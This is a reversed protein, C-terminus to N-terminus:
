NAFVIDIINAMRKNRNATDSTMLSANIFFLGAIRKPPMTNKDTPTKHTLWDISVSLAM